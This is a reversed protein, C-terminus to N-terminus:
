FENSKGIRNTVWVPPRPDYQLNQLNQLQQAATLRGGAFTHDDYNVNTARANNNFFGLPNYYNTPVLLDIAYPNSFAIIPAIIAMKARETAADAALSSTTQDATTSVSGKLSRSVVLLTIAMFTIIALLILTIVLAVGQRCRPQRRLSRCSSGLDLIWSGPFSWTGFGLSRQSSDQLKTSSAERSRPVQHKTSARTGSEASARWFCSARDRLSDRHQLFTKM